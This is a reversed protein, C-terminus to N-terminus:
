DTEFQDEESFEPVQEWELLLKNIGFIDIDRNKTHLYNQVYGRVDHNCHLWIKYFLNKPLYLKALKLGMQGSFSSNYYPIEFEEMELIYPSNKLKEMIKPYVTDDLNKQLYRGQIYDLYIVIPIPMQSMEYLEYHGLCVFIFDKEVFKKNKFDKALEQATSFLDANKLAFLDTIHLKSVQTNFKERDKLYVIFSSKLTVKLGENYPKLYEFAADSIKSNKYTVKLNLLGSLLEYVETKMQVIKNTTNLLKPM